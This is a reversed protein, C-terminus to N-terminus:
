SLQQNRIALAPIDREVAVLLQLLDNQHKSQPVLLFCAIGLISQSTDLATMLFDEM